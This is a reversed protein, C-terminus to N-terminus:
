RGNRSEMVTELAVRAGKVIGVLRNTKQRVTSRVRDVTDDVRDITHHIAHDVRDTEGRVTSTVGKVDDLIGNIRAMAPAVQRSEIGALLDLTRRYLEMAKRYAMYCAIGAGILLIGELASVAAMVGLLINTTELNGDM